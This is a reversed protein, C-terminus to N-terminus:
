GIRMERKLMKSRTGFSPDLRPQIQSFSPVQPHRILACTPSHSSLPQPHQTSTPLCTPHNPRSRISSYGRLVHMRHEHVALGTTVHHSLMCDVSLLRSYPFASAIPRGLRNRRARRATSFSVSYRYSNRPASSSVSRQSIRDTNLHSM